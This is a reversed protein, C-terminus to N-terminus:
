ESKMNVLPRDQPLVNANKTLEDFAHQIFETIIHTMISVISTRYEKTIESIKWQLHNCVKRLFPHINLFTSDTDSLLVSTRTMRSAKAGKNPWPWPYFVFYEIMSNFEHLNEKISEPPHNVDPFDDVVLNETIFDMIGEYELFNNLNNKFYLKQRITESYGNISDELLAIQTKSLTFEAHKLIQKVITDTSLEIDLVMEDDNNEKNVINDIYTIIESFDDFYYNGGILGEFGLIATQIIMQGQYTISPGLDPNYLCFSKAGFAGYYSNALIKFATQLLDLYNYVSKDEDNLHTLMQKKVIKREGLLYRVFKAPVNLVKNGNYFLTNYATIIPKDGKNLKVIKILGAVSTDIMENKISHFLSIDNNEYNSLTYERLKNLNIRKFKKSETVLKIRSLLEQFYSDFVIKEEKSLNDYLATM